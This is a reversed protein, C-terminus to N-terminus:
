SRVCNRAYQRYWPKDTSLSRAFEVNMCIELFQYRAIATTKEIM